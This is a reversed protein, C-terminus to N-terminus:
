VCSDNLIPASEVLPMNIAKTLEVFQWLEDEHFTRLIMTRIWAYNSNQGFLAGNYSMIIKYDLEADNEDRKIFYYLCCQTVDVYFHCSM